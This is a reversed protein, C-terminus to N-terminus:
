GYIRLGLTRNALSQEGGVGWLGFLRALHGRGGPGRVQDVLGWIRTTLFESEPWGGGIQTAFGVNLPRRCGIRTANGVSERGYRELIAWCAGWIAVVHCRYLGVRGLM